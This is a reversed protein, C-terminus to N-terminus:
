AKGDRRGKGLLREYIQENQEMLVESDAREAILRAVNNKMSDRLPEDTVLRVIAHGIAEVDHLPVFLGHREDEIWERLSPLDSLVPLAGCALAELVSAPTGDSSPVSVIVDSARYLDAIAQESDLDGIYRVATGAGQQQIEAKFRDLTGPDFIHTRVIFQASPLSHLVAPIAAAIDLPNYLPKLSRPSLIVPGPSLGLRARLAARDAAPHFLDTNIGWPAVDLASPDAGLARAADALNRSLCTVYDARRLVWRTIQRMIWSEHPTVLLDSGWATVVFPHFGAAAAVWGPRNVQHAHLVDPRLQRVIKRTQRAWTLYRFKSTPGSQTLDHLTVGAPLPPRPPQVTILHVDHGRAAFYEVWRRTHISYNAVYCLRM